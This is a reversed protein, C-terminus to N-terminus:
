EPLMARGVELRRMWQPFHPSRSQLSRGAARNASAAAAAAAAARRRHQTESKRSRVNQRGSHTRSPHLPPCPLLALTAAPDLPHRREGDGLYLIHLVPSPRGSSSSVPPHNEEESAGEKEQLGGEGASRRRRCVEKEQLGGEGASRRRRCVEKEQLGGEGASRRRRCVEKEQLGGEGASRRRRCVEKEQLGGEGASRRRRCVEKEQLGGEGASRRRRCVEKEQLGGEGRGQFCALSVAVLGSRPAISCGSSSAQARSAAVKM